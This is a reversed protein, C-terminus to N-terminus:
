IGMKIKTKTYGLTGDDLEHVYGIEYRNEGEVLFKKPVRAVFGIDNIEAFEYQSKLDDRLVPQTPLAYSDGTVSDTLVIQAKIKSADEFYAYGKIFLYDSNEISEIKCVTNECPVCSNLDIKDWKAYAQFRIYNFVIFVIIALSLTAVIVIKRQKASM